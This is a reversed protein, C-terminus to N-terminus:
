YPPRALNIHTHYTGRRASLPAICGIGGTTAHAQLSHLHHYHKNSLQPHSRPNTDVSSVTLLARPRSDDFFDLTSRVATRRRELCLAAKTRRDLFVFVFVFFCPFPPRSIIHDSRPIDDLQIGPGKLTSAPSYIQYPNVFSSFATVPYRSHRPSFIIIAIFM